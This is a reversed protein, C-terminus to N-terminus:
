VWTEQNVKIVTTSVTSIPLYRGAPNAYSNHQFRGNEYNTTAVNNNYLDSFGVIEKGPLGEAVYETLSPLVAHPTATNCGLLFVQANATLVNKMCAIENRDGTFHYEKGLTLYWNGAHGHLSLVNIPTGFSNRADVLAECFQTTNKVAYARTNCNEYLVEAFSAGPTDLRNKTEFFGDFIVATCSKEKSLHSIARHKIVQIKQMSDLKEFKELGEITNLTKSFCAGLGITGITTLIAGSIFDSIKSSMSRREINLNWTEYCTFIKKTGAIIARSSSIATALVLLSDVAIRYGKEHPIYGFLEM